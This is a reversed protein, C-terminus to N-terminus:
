LLGREENLIDKLIKEDEEDYDSLFELILEMPEMIKENDIEMDMDVWKRNKFLIELVHPYHFRIQEQLDVANLDQQDLLEIRVYDQSSQQIINQYYGQITRVPHKMHLPLSTIKTNGKELLDVMLIQKNQNQESISYAMPSGAYRFINQKVTMPKHIHGLAAYDFPKLASSYIVDINGVTQIESDSREIDQLSAEEPLYFQHSVLVNRQNLDITEKELLLHIAKDYSLSQDMDINLYQKVHSPRVFPMLYFLIDGYKDECKIKQIPLTSATYFKEKSLLNKYQDMYSSNDHNGAIVMIQIDEKAEYIDSLWQNYQRLANASPTSRDFVDGAIILVDPQYQKIYQVIQNLIYNQEETLDYNMLRIGLHLDSVHFLRM